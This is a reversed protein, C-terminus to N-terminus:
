RAPAGPMRVIVEIEARGREDATATAVDVGDISFTFVARPNVNRVAFEVEQERPARVAFEVEADGAADGDAGTPELTATREVEDDEEDGQVFRGSLITAGQDDRVEAVAANTFDHGTGPTQADLQVVMYAAIAITALLGAAPIIQREDSM